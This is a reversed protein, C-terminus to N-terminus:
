WTIGYQKGLRRATDEDSEGPRRSPIDRRKASRSSAEPKTKRTRAPDAADTNTKTTKKTTNKTTTDSDTRAPPDTAVAPKEAPKIRDITESAAYTVGPSSEAYAVASVFLLPAILIFKRMNVEPQKPELITGGIQLEQMM